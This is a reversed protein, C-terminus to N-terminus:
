LSHPISWWQFFIHWLLIIYIRQWTKFLHFMELQFWARAHARANLVPPRSVRLCFLRALHTPLARLCPAPVFFARILACKPCMRVRLFSVYAWWARAFLLSELIPNTSKIQGHLLSIHAKKRACARAHMNVRAKSAWMAPAFTKVRADRARAHWISAREGQAGCMFEYRFWALSYTDIASMCCPNKRTVYVGVLSSLYYSGDQNSPQYIIYNSMWISAPTSIHGHVYQSVRTIACRAVYSEM